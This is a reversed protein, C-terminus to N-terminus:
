PNLKMARLIAANVKHVDFKEEALARSADGMPQWAKPNHAFWLMREALADANQREVLFGNEGDVVTERCGVNDTTLIPRGMSMAELITRPLGEGYYSPLVFVHCGEIFPRVDPTSGLYEVEGAEQWAKVEEVPVADASNDEPGLIQFRADPFQSLVVRAASSFERVGKERLLRAILMFIPADGDPLDSKTYRELDVGIGNLIVSKEESVIGRRLFETPDDPNLFFVKRARKLAIRYLFTALRTLMRRKFGVGQFAYGTGEVMGYFQADPVTRLAFASWVIPKVTYAFVIDPKIRSLTRRLQALTRLDHFPNHSRREVDYPEFIAGMREISAVMEPTTHNAMTTVTHGQSVLERVLDGRFNLLSGPAAGIIVVSAM